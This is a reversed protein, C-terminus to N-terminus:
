LTHTCLHNFLPSCVHPSPPMDACLIAGQTAVVPKDFYVAFDLVDGAAYYGSAQLSHVLADTGNIAPPDTDINLTSTSSLHPLHSLSLNANVAPNDSSRRIYAGDPIDVARSGSMVDVSTAEDGELVEYTFWLARGGSGSSYTAYRTINSRYTSSNSQSINLPIRPYGEVMVRFSFVLRLAIEHGGGVSVSRGNMDIYKNLVNSVTLNYDSSYSGDVGEQNVLLAIEEVQPTRTDVVIGSSLLYSPPITTNVSRGLNDSIDAGHLLLSTTNIVTVNLHHITPLYSSLTGSFTLTNTRTDITQCELEQFASSNLPINLTLTPANAYTTVTVEQTFEVYVVMNDGSTLITGYDYPTYLQAVSVIPASSTDIFLRKNISLSSAM